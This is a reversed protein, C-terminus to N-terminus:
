MLLVTQSPKFKMKLLGTDAIRRMASLTDVHFIMKVEVERREIGGLKETRYYMFLLNGNGLHDVPLLGNIFYVPVCGRDYVPPLETACFSGM